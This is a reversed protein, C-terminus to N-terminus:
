VFPLADDDAEIPTFGSAVAPAATATAGCFKAPPLKDQEKRSLCFRVKARNEGNYEEHVVRVAGVKGKWRTYNSMNYDTIGFSDFFSGIRQNTKKSDTPDIVLYFWLKSSFGSVELTVEYMENGANSNKSIVDYIRVRHDGVPVIQFDQEEYENPNFTWAM